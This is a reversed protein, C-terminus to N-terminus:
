TGRQFADDDKVLHDLNGLMLGSGDVESVEQFEALVQGTLRFHLLQLALGVVVVDGVNEIGTSSGAVGFSHNQRVSLEMGGHNRIALTYGDVLVVADHVEQWVCVDKLTAPGNEAEISSCPHNDVRM